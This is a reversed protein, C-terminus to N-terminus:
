SSETRRAEQQWFSKRIGSAAFNCRSEQSLNSLVTLAKGRLSAALFAAKDEPEWENLNAIIEFQTFYAEWTMTGDFTPAKLRVSTPSRTLQSTNEV